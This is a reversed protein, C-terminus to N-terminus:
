LVRSIYWARRSIGVLRWPFDLKCIQCVVKETGEDYSFEPFKSEIEAVSKCAIMIRNEEVKGDSCTEVKEETLSINKVGQVVKELESVTNMLKLHSKVLQLNIDIRELQNKETSQTSCNLSSLIEAVKNEIKDLAKKTDETLKNESVAVAVAVGRRM